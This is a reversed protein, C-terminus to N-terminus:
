ESSWNVTAASAIAAATEAEAVAKKAAMRKGEIAASITQWAEFTAVIEAAKEAITVGDVPAEATLHPIEAAAIEPDAVFARAEVLKQQYAMVQGDGPTIFNLRYTEASRDIRKLADAKLADLDPEVSAPSWAAIQQAVAAPVEPWDAVADLLATEPRSLQDLMAERDDSDLTTTIKAALAQWFETAGLIQQRGLWWAVSAMWRNAKGEERASILAEVMPEYMSDIRYM